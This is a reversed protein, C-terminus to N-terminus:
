SNNTNKRKQVVGDNTWMVNTWQLCSAWNGDRRQAVLHCPTVTLHKRRTEVGYLESFLIM